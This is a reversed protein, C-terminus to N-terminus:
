EKIDSKSKLPVIIAWHETQDIVGGASLGPSEPSSGVTTAKAKALLKPNGGAV